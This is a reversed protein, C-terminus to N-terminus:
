LTTHDIIDKGGALEIILKVLAARQEPEKWPGTFCLHFTGDDYLIEVDLEGVEPPKMRFANLLFSENEAVAKDLTDIDYKSRAPFTLRWPGFQAANVTERLDAYRAPDTVFTVTAELIRDKGYFSTCDGCRDRVDQLSFGNLVIGYPNKGDTQAAWYRVLYGPQRPLRRQEYEDDPLVLRLQDSTPELWLGNAELTCTVHPELGSLRIFDTFLRRRYELDGAAPSIGGITLGLRPGFDDSGYTVQIDLKKRPDYKRGSEAIDTHLWSRTASSECNQLLDFYQAALDDSYSAIDHNCHISSWSDFEYESLIPLKPSFITFSGSGKRRPSFSKVNRAAGIFGVLDEKKLSKTYLELGPM